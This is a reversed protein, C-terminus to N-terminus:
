GPRKLYALGDLQELAPDGTKGQVIQSQAMEIEPFEALLETLALECLEQSDEENLDDLCYSLTLCSTAPEWHAAAATVNQNLNRAVITRAAWFLNQENM